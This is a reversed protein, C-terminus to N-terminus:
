HFYFHGTKSFLRNVGQVIMPACHGSLIYMGVLFPCQMHLKMLNMNKTRCSRMCFLEKCNKNMFPFYWGSYYKSHFPIQAKEAMQWEKYFGDFLWSFKALAIWIERSFSKLWPFGHIQMDGYLSTAYLITILESWYSGLIEGIQYPLFAWPSM